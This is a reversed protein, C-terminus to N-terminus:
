TNIKNMYKFKSNPPTKAV